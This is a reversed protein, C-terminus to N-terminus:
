GAELTCPDADFATSPRNREALLRRVDCLVHEAVNNLEGVPLFGVRYWRQLVQADVNCFSGGQSRGRERNNLTVNVPQPLLHSLYTEDCRSAPQAVNVRLSRPAVWEPEGIMSLELRDLGDNLRQLTRDVDIGDHCLARSPCDACVALERERKEGPSQTTLKDVDFFGRGIRALGRRCFWDTVVHGLATARNALRTIEGEGLPQIDAVAAIGECNLPKLALHSGKPLEEIIREADAVSDAALPGVVWYTMQPDVGEVSQVLQLPDATVGLAASRPTATLKILVNARSTAFFTREEATLPKRTLYTLSHSPDLLEILRSTKHFQLGADSDHGIRIQVGAQFSPLSALWSQMKRPDVRNDIVVQETFLGERSPHRRSICFKCGFHCGVIFDAAIFAGILKVPYYEPLLHDYSRDYFRRSM